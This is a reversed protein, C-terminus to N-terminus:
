LPLGEEESVSESRAPWWGLALSPAVPTLRATRPVCIVEGLPTILIVDIGLPPEANTIALTTLEHGTLGVLQVIRSDALGPLTLRVTLYGIEEERPGSAILLTARAKPASVTGRRLRLALYPPPVGLALVLDASEVPRPCSGTVAALYGQLQFAGYGDTASVVAFTTARNLLAQLVASAAAYLPQPCRRDRTPVQEVAGPSLWARRLARRIAPLDITPPLEGTVRTM